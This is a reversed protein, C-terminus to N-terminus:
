WNLRTTMITIAASATVVSYRKPVMRTDNWATGLRIASSSALVATTATRAAITPSTVANADHATALSIWGLVV